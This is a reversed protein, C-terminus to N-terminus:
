ENGVRVAASARTQPVSCCVATSREQMTEALLRALTHLMHLCTDCCCGM